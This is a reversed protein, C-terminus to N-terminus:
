QIASRPAKGTASSVIAEARRACDAVTFTRGDDGRFAIDESKLARALFDHLPELVTPDAKDAMNIVARLIMTLAAIEVATDMRTM